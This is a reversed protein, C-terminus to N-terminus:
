ASGSEASSEEKRLADFDPDREARCQVDSADGFTMALQLFQKAQALRGTLCAYCAADYYLPWHQPFSTIKSLALDYAEAYRHQYYLTQALAIWGRPDLPADQTLARAIIWCADWKKGRMEIQWRLSLVDPHAIREQAIQNLEENAEHCNGLELWGEAARLHQADEHPLPHM